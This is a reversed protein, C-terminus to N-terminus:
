MYVTYYIIEIKEIDLLRIKPKILIIKGLFYRLKKSFM